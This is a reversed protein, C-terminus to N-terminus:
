TDQIEFNHKTQRCLIKDSAKGIAGFSVLEFLQLNKSIHSHM